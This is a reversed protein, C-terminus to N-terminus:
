NAEPHSLAEAVVRDSEIDFRAAMRMYMWALIWAMFFQSLAFLYAGNVVGLLPRKMVEPFYGVSIPLAFYYVLFFVTAAVIFRMKKAVMDRYVQSRAIRAFDEPRVARHHPQSM